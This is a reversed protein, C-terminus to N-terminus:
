PTTGTANLIFPPRLRNTCTNAIATPDPNKLFDTVAAQVCPYQITNHAAGSVILHKSNNLSKRVMEGYEPPTVPDLDGSLLLVPISGKLPEFFEKPVPTTDWITCMEQLQSSSSVGLDLTPVQEFDIRPADESCTISLYLGIPITSFPSTDMWGIISSWDDYKAAQHIAYPIMASLQSSYLLQQLVGWLVDQSVVTQTMKGTRPHPHSLTKPESDLRTLVQQYESELNPFVKSCETDLSCDLFIQELSRRFGKGFDEGIAMKFPVLGDLVMSRISSPNSRAITM